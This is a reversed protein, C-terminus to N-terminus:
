RVQGVSLVINNTVSVPPGSSVSGSVFDISYDGLAFQNGTIVLGHITGGPQLVVGKGGRIRSVTAARDRASPIPARLPELPAPSSTTLHVGRISAGFKWNGVLPLCPEFQDPEWARSAGLFGVYRHRCPRTGLPLRGVNDIASSDVRRRAM